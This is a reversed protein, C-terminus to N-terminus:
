RGPLALADTARPLPLEGSRRLTLPLRQTGPAPTDVSLGM